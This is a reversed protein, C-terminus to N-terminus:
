IFNVYMVSGAVLGFFDAVLFTSAAAALLGWTLREILAPTLAPRVPVIVGLFRSCRLGRARTAAEAALFAEVGLFAAEGFRAEGLFAADGFRAEGLFARREGFFAAEGFRAVGLFAADGL